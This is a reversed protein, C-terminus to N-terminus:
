PVLREAVPLLGEYDKINEQTMAGYGAESVVESSYSSRNCSDTTFVTVFYKKGAELGSIIFNSVKGINEWGYEYSGSWSGYKIGINKDNSGEWSIYIEGMGPGSEAKLNYPVALLQGSCSAEGTELVAKRVVKFDAVKGSVDIKVDGEYIAKFVGKGLRKDGGRNDELNIDLIIIGEEEKEVKGAVGDEFYFNVFELERPDYNIENQFKEWNQESRLGIEISFTEGLIVVAEEPELWVKDLEQNVRPNVGSAEQLFTELEKGQTGSKALDLNVLEAPDMNGAIALFLFVIVMLTGTMAGIQGLLTKISSKEEKIETVNRRLIPDQEDQLFNNTNRYM